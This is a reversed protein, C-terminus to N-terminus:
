PRMYRTPQPHAESDAARDNTCSLQTTVTSAMKNQEDRSQNKEDTPRPHRRKGSEHGRQSASQTEAHREAIDALRQLATYPVHKRSVRDDAESGHEGLIMASLPAARLIAPASIAVTPTLNMRIPMASVPRITPM